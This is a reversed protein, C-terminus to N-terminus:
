QGNVMRERLANKFEDATLGKANKQEEQGVSLGRAVGKSLTQSHGQGAPVQKIPSDSMVETVPKKKNTMVRETGTADPEVIFHGQSWGYLPHVQPRELSEVFYIGHEGVQPFQMDSIATTREGVTGGSFSLTIACDNYEGKIVEKIEYTVYTHIRMQSNERAELRTVTGEFVLQSQKLMEDVTVERVSSAWTSSAISPIIVILLSIIKLIMLSKGKM